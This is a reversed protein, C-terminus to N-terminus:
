GIVTQRVGDANDVEPAPHQHEFIDDEAWLM